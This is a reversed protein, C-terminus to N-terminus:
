DPAFNFCTMSQTDATCPWLAMIGDSQDTDLEGRWGGCGAGRGRGAGKGPGKGKVPPVGKGAGDGGFDSLASLITGQDPRGSADGGDKAHLSWIHDLVLSVAEYRTRQARFVGTWHRSIHSKGYAGWCRQFSSALAIQVVEVAVDPLLRKLCDPRHNVIATRGSYEKPKHLDLM